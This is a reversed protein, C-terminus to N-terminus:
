LLLDPGRGSRATREAAEIFHTTMTDVSFRGRITTLANRALALRSADDDALQLLRARIEDLNGKPVLAGNHGDIVLETLGGVAYCVVPIALAMCELAAFPLAENRSLMLLAHCDHLERAPDRTFGTWTIRQDLGLRQAHVKLESAAPGDGVIKLHFLDPLRALLDIAARQNKNENVTGVMALNFRAGAHRPTPQAHEIPAVGNYVTVIPRSTFGDPLSSRCVRVLLDVRLLFLKLLLPRLWRKIAITQDDGISSHHVMISPGQMGPRLGWRFLTGAGNFVRIVPGASHSVPLQLSRLEEPAGHKLTVLEVEHGRRRLEPILLALYREGGGFTAATSYFCFKM